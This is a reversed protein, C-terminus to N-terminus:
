ESSPEIEFFLYGELRAKHTGQVSVIPNSDEVIMGDNEVEDNNDIPIMSFKPLYVLIDHM